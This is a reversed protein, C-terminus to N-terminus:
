SRTCMQWCHWQWCHAYTYTHTHTNQEPFDCQQQPEVHHSRPSAASAFIQRSRCRARIQVRTGTRAGESIVAVSRHTFSTFSHTHPLARTHNGAGDPACRIWLALHNSGLRIRMPRVGFPAILRRDAPTAPTAHVCVRVCRNPRRTISQLRVDPPYIGHIHVSTATLRAFQRLTRM